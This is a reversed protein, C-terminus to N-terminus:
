APEGLSHPVVGLAATIVDAALAHGRDDPHNVGNNLLTPYPLGDDYLAEWRRSVDALALRHRSAFARLFRTLPRGDPADLRATGMWAGATFHPTTIMWDAGITRFLELLREHNRQRVDAALWADNVFESIVLDPELGLVADLDAPLPASGRLGAAAATGPDLWDSTSSGDVAVTHLEVRDEGWAEGLRRGLLAPFAAAPSSADGGATVSDGWCVIRVPRGSSIKTRVRALRERQDLHRRPRSRDCYLIRGTRAFHDVFVNAVRRQHEPLEPPTPAALHEAGQWVHWRGDRDQSVSDVRRRSWRYSLRVRAPGAAVESGGATSRELSGWFPDITYDRGDVLRGADTRIIVSAQDLAGPVLAGDSGRWSSRIRAPGKEPRWGPVGAPALLHDEDLVQDVPAPEIENILAMPLRDLRSESHQGTM